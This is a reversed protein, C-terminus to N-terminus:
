IFRVRLSRFLPSELAALFVRVVPRDLLDNITASPDLTRRLSSVVQARSSGVCVSLVKMILLYLSAHAFRVADVWAEEVSMAFNTTALVIM